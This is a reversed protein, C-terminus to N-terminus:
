NKTAWIHGFRIVHWTQQSEGCYRGCIMARATAASTEGRQLNACACYKRTPKRSVMNLCKQPM